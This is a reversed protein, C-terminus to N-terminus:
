VAVGGIIAKNDINFFIMDANSGAPLDTIVTQTQKCGDIFGSCSMSSLNPNQFSFAVVRGNPMEHYSNFLGPYNLQGAVEDKHDQFTAGKDKSIFSKFSPNGLPSTNELYILHGAASIAKPARGNINKQEAI